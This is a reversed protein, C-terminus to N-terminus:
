IKEIFSDINQCDIIKVCKLIDNLFKDEKQLLVLTIDFKTTDLYQLLISMVRETGGSTLSNILFPIKSNTNL